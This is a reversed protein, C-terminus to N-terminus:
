SSTLFKTLLFGLELLAREKSSGSAEASWAVARGGKSLSAVSTRKKERKKKFHNQSVSFCQNTTESISANMPQNKCTGRSPISGM